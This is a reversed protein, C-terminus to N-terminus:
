ENYLEMINNLIFITIELIVTNNYDFISIATINSNQRTLWGGACDRASTLMAVRGVRM